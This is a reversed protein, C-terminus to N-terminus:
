RTVRTLLAEWEELVHDLRYREMERRAQRGAQERWAGDGMATGLAQALARSDGRPALVGWDGLLQRVGSSCDTAVVPVACAQAEMLALPLGETRSPLVLLDSDLLLEQPSTTAAIWEIRNAGALARAYERLPASLPGDGVIRLNWGPHQDAVLSWADLLLDVGKEESLRGLYVLTRQGAEDRDDIADPWFALPNPLACVNNLGARGFAQADEETLATFVSVSSYSRVVRTLDRGSAAAAFSGHYQGIVSWRARVDPGVTSLADSLIEMAWVQATVIVAPETVDGKLIEVMSAVAQARLQSRTRENQTTKKPWPDSMLVRRPYSEKWEHVPEFPTVGVVLVDHGRRQLGGALVHVVRQAGGLEDINNACLVVRTM